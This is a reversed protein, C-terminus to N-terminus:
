RIAGVDKFHDGLLYRPGAGKAAVQDEPNYLNCKDLSLCGCGICGDLSNKLHNLRKIEQELDGRILRGINTWERATPAREHPLTALAARIQRLSYGLGQMILIFSVRRISSRHFLRHGAPNRMVPVIGEDAYYRIASVACGTRSAVVGISVLPDKKM